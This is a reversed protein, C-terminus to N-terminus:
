RTVSTMCSMLVATMGAGRRQGSHHLQGRVDHQRGHVQSASAGLQCEAPRAPGHQESDRQGSPGSSSCHVSAPPLKNYPVNLFSLEERYM